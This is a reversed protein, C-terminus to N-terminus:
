NEHLQVSSYLLPRGNQADQVLVFLFLAQPNASFNAASVLKSRGQQDEYKFQYAVHAQAQDQLTLSANGGAEISLQQTGFEAQVRFPTPNYVFVRPNQQKNGTELLCLELQNQGQPAALLWYKGQKQPMQLTGSYIKDEFKFSLSIKEASLSTQPPQGRRDLFDKFKGEPKDAAGLRYSDPQKSLKNICLIRLNYAAQLPLACGLLLLCGTAMHLSRSFHFIQM